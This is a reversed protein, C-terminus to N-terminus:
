GKSMPQKQSRPLPLFTLVKGTGLSPTTRGIRQNDTTECPQSPGPMGAFAQAGFYEKGQSGGSNRSLSEPNSEPQHTGRLVLYHLYDEDDRDV